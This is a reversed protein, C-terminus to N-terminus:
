YNGIGEMRAIFAINALKAILDADRPWQVWVPYRWGFDETEQRIQRYKATNEEYMTRWADLYRSAQNLEETLRANVESKSRTIIGLNTIQTELQTVETEFTAINSQIQNMVNKSPVIWSDYNLPM